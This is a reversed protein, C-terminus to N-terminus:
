IRVTKIVFYILIVLYLFDTSWLIMKWKIIFVSTMKNTSLILFDEIIIIPMLIMITVIMRLPLLLILEEIKLYSSVKCPYCWFVMVSTSAGEGHKEWYLKTHLQTDHSKNKALPTHFLLWNWIPGHFVSKCYEMGKKGKRLLKVICIGCPM